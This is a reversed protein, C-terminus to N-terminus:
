ARRRGARIQALEWRGVANRLQQLRGPSLGPDPLVRPRADEAVCRVRAKPVPPRGLVDELDALLRPPLRGRRVTVKGDRVELVFLETSARIAAVLPLSLLALIAFGVVIWM